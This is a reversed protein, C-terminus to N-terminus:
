VMVTLAAPLIQFSAPCQGILEGDAEVLAKGSSQITIVPARSMSVKPNEVHSGSYTKRWVGWTELVGIDGLTVVDLMGDDIEAQPAMLMSGGLFRGNAVTTMLCKGTEVRPGARVQLNKNRYMFRVSAGSAVRLAYRLTRGISNPIFHGEVLDQAAIIAAAFGVSAHNIFFRRHPVEDKRYKVVGADVPIKSQRILRSISEDTNRTIGLSRAFTCTTGASIIGLTVRSSCVSSLIGNVVESLTGDGGVAIIYQYGSDAAEKALKEAHNRGETFAPDFTLGADLLMRSLWPRKRHLSSGGAVPNVIVKARPVSMLIEGPVEPHRQM